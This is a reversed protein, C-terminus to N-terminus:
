EYEKYKKSKYKKNITILPLGETTANVFSSINQNIDKRLKDYNNDRGNTIINILSSYLSLSILSRISYLLVWCLAIVVIIFMVSGFAIVMGQKITQHNNKYVELPVVTLRSRFFDIKSLSTVTINGEIGVSDRADFKLNAGEKNYRQLYRGTSDAQISEMVGIKEIFECYNAPIHLLVTCSCIVIIASVIPAWLLMFSNWCWVFFIVIYSYVVTLSHLISKVTERSKATQNNDDQTISHTVRLRFFRMISSLCNKICVKKSSDCDRSLEEQIIKNSEDAM